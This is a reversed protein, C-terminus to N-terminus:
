GASSPARNARRRGCTACCSACLRRSFCTCCASSCSAGPGLRRSPSSGDALLRAAGADGSARPDKLEAPSSGLVLVTDGMGIVYTQIDYAKGAYTTTRLATLQTFVDQEAQGYTWNTNSGLPSDTNVWQSPDYQTGDTKGTPNGDTAMVVFNRQCTQTIPTQGTSNNFYNGVTKCAAPWRLTSPTTRSRAV